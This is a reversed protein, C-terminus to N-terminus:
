HKLTNFAVRILFLKIYFFIQPMVTSLSVRPAFVPFVCRSPSDEDFPYDASPSISVDGWQVESSVFTSIHKCASVMQEECLGRAEGVRNIERSDREERGLETETDPIFEEEPVCPWLWIIVM